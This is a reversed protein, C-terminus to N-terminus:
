GGYDITRYFFSGGPDGCEFVMSSQTASYYYLSAYCQFDDFYLNWPHLFLYTSFFFMGIYTNMDPVKNAINLYISITSYNYIIASRPYQIQNDRYFVVISQVTELAYNEQKLPDVQSLSFQSLMVISVVIIVFVCALKEKM